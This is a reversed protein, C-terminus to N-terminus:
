LERCASLLRAGAASRRQSALWQRCSQDRAGHCGCALRLLDARIMLAAARSRSRGRRVRRSHFSAEALSPVVQCFAEPVDQHVADEAQGRLAHGVTESQGGDGRCGSIPTGFGARSITAFGDAFTRARDRGPLGRAARVGARGPALRRLWGRRRSGLVVLDGGWGLNALEVAPRGSFAQREMAVDGPLWGVAQDVATRILANGYAVRDAYLDRSEPPM